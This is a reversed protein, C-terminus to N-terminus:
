RDVKPRHGSIYVQSNHVLAQVAITVDVMLGKMENGLESSGYFAELIVLGVAFQIPYLIIFVSFCVKKQVKPKCISKLWTKSYHVHRRSRERPLQCTM